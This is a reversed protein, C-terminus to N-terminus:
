NWYQSEFHWTGPSTTRARAPVIDLITERRMVTSKTQSTWNILEARWGFQSNDKKFVVNGDHRDTNVLHFEDYKKRAEDLVLEDVKTRDNKFLTESLPIGMKPM